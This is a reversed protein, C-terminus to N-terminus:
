PQKGQIVKAMLEAVFQNGTDNLHVRDYTLIGKEANKPNNKLNYDLFAQRLDCLPLNRSQALKRILQSYQNLDGDQENSSDTREGIVAPTCLIVRVNAAQLKTILADYFTVFKDADTGTGHTRKHWVDNVGVWIVVVDPQKALVDSEYRLYLDYIKNGGIGTGMLEFQDTPLLARLRDIYGGPQVGAFTISDGFFVVRTPKAFSAALLAGAVFLLLSIKMYM